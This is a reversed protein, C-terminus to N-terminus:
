SVLDYEEHFVNFYWKTEETVDYIKGADHRTRDSFRVSYKAIAKDGAKFKNPYVVSGPNSLIIM